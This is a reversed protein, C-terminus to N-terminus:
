RMSLLWQPPNLVKSKTDRVLELKLLPTSTQHSVNSNSADNTMMEGIKGLMRYFPQLNLHSAAVQPIEDHDENSETIFAM